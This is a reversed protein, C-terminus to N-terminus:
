VQDRSSPNDAAAEVVINKPEENSGHLWPVTLSALPTEVGTLPPASGHGHVGGPARPEAVEFYAAGNGCCDSRRLYVLM